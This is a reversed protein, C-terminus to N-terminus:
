RAERSEGEPHRAEVSATRLDYRERLWRRLAAPKGRTALRYTPLFDLARVIVDSEFDTRREADSEYIRVADCLVQHCFVAGQVELDVVDVAEIGLARGVQDALETAIREHDVESPRRYVVGIDVDSEPGAQGRAVSGFLYAAAIAPQRAFLPALLSPVEELPVSLKPSM